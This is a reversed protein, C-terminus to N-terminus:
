HHLRLARKTAYCSTFLFGVDDKLRFIDHHDAIDGRLSRNVQQSDWLDVYGGSSERFVATQPSGEHGRGHLDSGSLPKRGVPQDHVAALLRAHADGM